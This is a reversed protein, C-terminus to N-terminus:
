HATSSGAWPDVLVKCQSTRRRLAEFAAPLAELSVTDTVMARPEVAGSALVDAVTAFQSLSSGQAWQLRVEKSLGTFPMLWDRALCLGLAIVTGRPRVLDISRGIMGEVGICEVVLDPEGGLSHVVAEGLGDDMVHFSSAGHAFAMTERRRSSAAAAIRGAGLRRAWFITALGIPGVGLVLVRQGAEMDAVDIARLGVSLPEVLAADAFPMKSPMPICSAASSLMYEAFGGMNPAFRKCWFPNGSLCHACKGCGRAPHPIVQDGVRLGEVKSGIAVIEGALEHGIIVGPPFLDIPQATLHLDSACIGCRQVRLVVEDPGPTPDPVDEVRLPQGVGPFVAAKM